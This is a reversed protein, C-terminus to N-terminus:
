VRGVYVKLLRILCIGLFGREGLSCQYQARRTSKALGVIGAPSSPAWLPCLAFQVQFHSNRCRVSAFARRGLYVM